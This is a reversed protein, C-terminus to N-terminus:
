FFVRSFYFSSKERQASGWVFILTLALYGAFWQYGGIFVEGFQSINEIWEFNFTSLIQSMACGYMNNVDWYDICSSEKRGGYDRM